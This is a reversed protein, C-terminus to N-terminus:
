LYCSASSSSSSICVWIVCFGISRASTYARVNRALWFRLYSTHLPCSAYYKWGRRFHFSNMFYNQFRVSTTEADTEANFLARRQKTEQARQALFRRKKTSRKSLDELVIFLDCTQSPQTHTDKQSKAYLEINMKARMFGTATATPQLVLVLERLIGLLLCLGRTCWLELNLYFVILYLTDQFSPFRYISLPAPIAATDM